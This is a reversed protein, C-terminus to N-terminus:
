ICWGMSMIVCTVGTTSCQSSRSIAWHTWGIFSRDSSGGCLSHISKGRLYMESGTYLLECTLQFMGTPFQRTDEKLETQAPQVWLADYWLINSHHSKETRFCVGYFYINCACPSTNSFFILNINIVFIRIKNGSYCQPKLYHEQKLYWYRYIWHIELQWM